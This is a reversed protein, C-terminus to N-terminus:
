AVESDTMESELISRSEKKRIRRLFFSTARPFQQFIYKDM